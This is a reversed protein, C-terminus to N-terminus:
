ARRLFFEITHRLGEDFPTRPRWGLTEKIKKFTGVSRRVEGPRTNVFVPGLVDEKECLKIVEYAIDRISREVGTCVNFVEGGPVRGDILAELIMVDAEAIDKVYVYDRTQLGDGFIVPPTNNLVSTIFKPIVAGFKGARQRPGFTNFGRSIV